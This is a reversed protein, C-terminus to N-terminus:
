GGCVFSVGEGRWGGAGLSESGLTWMCVSGGGSQVIAVVVGGSSSYGSVGARRWDSRAYTGLRRADCRM